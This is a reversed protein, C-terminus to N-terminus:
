RRARFREVILVIGAGLIVLGGTAMGPDIEPTPFGAFATGHLMLTAFGIALIHRLKVEDISRLGTVYRAGLRTGGHQLQLL